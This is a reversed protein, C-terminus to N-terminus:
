TNKFDSASDCDNSFRIIYRVQSPASRALYVRGLHTGKDQLVKEIVYRQGSRGVVETPMPRKDVAGMRQAKGTSSGASTRRRRLPSVTSVAFARRSLSCRAFLLSKYLIVRCPIVSFSPHLSVMPFPPFPSLVFSGRYLLLFSGPLYSNGFGRRVHFLITLFPTMSFHLVIDLVREDCITILCIDVNLFKLLTHALIFRLQPARAKSDITRGEPVNRLSFLNRILNTSVNM